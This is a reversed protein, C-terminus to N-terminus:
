RLETLLIVSSFVLVACLLVLTRVVPSTASATIDRSAPADTPALRSSNAAGSYASSSQIDPTTSSAVSSSSQSSLSDSSLGIFFPALSNMRPMILLLISSLISSLVSCRSCLIAAPCSNMMASLNQWSLASQTASVSSSWSIISLMSDLCVSMCAFISAYEWSSSGSSVCLIDASSSRSSSSARYSQLVSSTQDSSFCSHHSSRASLSSSSTQNSQLVRSIHDSSFCSHHSPKM